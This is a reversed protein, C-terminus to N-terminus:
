ANEKNPTSIKSDTFISFERQLLQKMKRIANGRHSIKGKENETMEAFTQDYVSIYFVPDYGFGGFGKLNETIHGEVCGETILETSGDTFAVITRFRATRKDYPVGQMELLLKSVNDKYSCSVGAYRASYVGPRGNLADVELGTDDAIAPLGTLRNVTMAKFKANEELTKGDEPIEGIEPFDDLTLIQLGLSNLLLQLEKRKNKNHTALVIKM